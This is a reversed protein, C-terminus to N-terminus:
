KLGARNAVRIFKGRYAILAGTGIFSLVGLTPSAHQFGWVGLMVSLLVSATIFVVHFMRLSM